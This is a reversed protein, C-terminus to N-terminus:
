DGGWVNCETRQSGRLTLVICSFPTLGRGGGVAAAALGARGVRSRQQEAGARGQVRGRHGRSSQGGQEWLMASAARELFHQSPPAGPEGPPEPAAALGEDKAPARVAAGPRARGHGTGAAGPCAARGGAAGPLSLQWSGLPLQQGGCVRGGGVGASAGTGAAAAAPPRALWTLLPGQAVPRAQKSQYMCKRGIICIYQIEPLFANKAKLM